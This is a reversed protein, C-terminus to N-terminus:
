AAPALEARRLAVDTPLLNEPLEQRPEEEGQRELHDAADRPARWGDRPSYARREPTALARM